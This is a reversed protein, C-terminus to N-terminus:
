TIFQIYSRSFSFDFNKDFANQIATKLHSSSVWFFYIDLTSYFLQSTKFKFSNTILSKFFYWPEMHIISKIIFNAPSIQNLKWINGHVSATFWFDYVMITRNAMSVARITLNLTKTVECSVASSLFSFQSSVRSSYFCM